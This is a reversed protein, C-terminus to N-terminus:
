NRESDPDIPDFGVIFISASLSGGIDVRVRCPLLVADMAKLEVPEGGIMMELEGEHCLLLNVESDLNGLDDLSGHRVTHRFAGRRTMVNLDTIPGDILKAGTHTDAPFSFPESDRDLRVEEQGSVALEIGEGQLVSLTRDIDPFTSFPGDEVVDAMSVRWAFDDLGAGDPFVAIETTEGKGNKWPMRRYDAARLIKM